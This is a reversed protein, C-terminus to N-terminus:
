GRTASNATTDTPARGVYRSEHAALAAGRAGAMDLHPVFSFRATRQQEPRLTTHERVRDLFWDRFEPAAEVVGGGIFYADPDTFMAAVSFLRGLAMAQQDFLKRAMEDGREGFARVLKAAKHLSSAAALEHDPYQGLWYPLLNLEIGTLSAVSEVDGNLGCNCAPVPQGAAILGEMPILIHGLEGAMGAAGKVVRGSEVIGGGLGTGVIASVSSRRHKTRSICITPTCPRPMAMTTTFSPFGSGSRWRGGSTM